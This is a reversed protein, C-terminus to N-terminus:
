QAQPFHEVHFDGDRGFYIVKKGSLYAIYYVTGAAMIRNLFEQYNIKNAQITRIAEAVLHGSFQKEATMHEHSVSEVHTKGNALYYRNESRILDVHYSEVDLASLKMVVEPFSLTGQLSQQIINQIVSINM